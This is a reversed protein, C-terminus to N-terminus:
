PKQPPKPPLKLTKSKAEQVEKDIETQPRMLREGDQSLTMMGEGINQGLDYHKGNIFAIIRGGVSDANPYRAQVDKILPM